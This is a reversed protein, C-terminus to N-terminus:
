GKAVDKIKLGFLFDDLVHRKKMLKMLLDM